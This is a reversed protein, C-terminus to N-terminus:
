GCTTGECGAVLEVSSDPLRSLSCPSQPCRCWTDGNLGCTIPAVHPPGLPLGPAARHGPWPVDQEQFGQKNASRARRPAARPHSSTWQGSPLREQGGGVGPARCLSSSSTQRAPLPHAHFCAALEQRPSVGGQAQETRGPWPNMATTGQGGAEPLLRQRWRCATAPPGWAAKHTPAPPREPRPLSSRTQGTIVCVRLALTEMTAGPAVALSGPWVGARDPPSLLWLYCWGLAPRPHWCFRRGWSLGTM